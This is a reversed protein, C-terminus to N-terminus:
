NQSEIRWGQDESLHWHLSNLKHFALWDIFSKVNEVPIFHRGSDLMMGRWGFRPYDSIKLAPVTVTKTTAWIEANSAPLLQLLTRTGYYAGAADKGIINIGKPSVEMTYGSAPLDSAPNIDLLIQSHIRSRQEKTAMMPKKGTLKELDKALLGAETALDKHYRIGTEASFAFTGEELKLSVPKPILPLPEAATAAVTGLLSLILPISKM